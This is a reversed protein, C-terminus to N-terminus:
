ELSSLLADLNKAIDPGDGVPTRHFYQVVFGRRKDEPLLAVIVPHDAPLPGPELTDRLAHEVALWQRAPVLRRELRDTGRWLISLYRAEVCLVAGGLRRGNELPSRSRM